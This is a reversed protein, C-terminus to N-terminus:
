RPAPQPGATLRGVMRRPGGNRNACSVSPQMSQGPANRPAAKLQQRLRKGTAEEVNYAVFFDLAPWTQLAPLGQLLPIFRLSLAKLQMCRSLLAFDSHNGWLSLSELESFQLLSQLSIAQKGAGNGLELTTVQKLTGM